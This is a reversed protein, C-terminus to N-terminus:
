YNDHDGTDIEFIDTIVTTGNYTCLQLSVVINGSDALQLWRQPEVTMFGHGFEGLDLCLFLQSGNTGCKTYDANVTKTDYSIPVNGYEDEAAPNITIPAGGLWTMNILRQYEASGTDSANRVYEEAIETHAKDAAAIMDDYSIGQERSFEIEDATYGYKRLNVAEQDSYETPTTTAADTVTDTSPDIPTGQQAEELMQLAVADDDVVDEPNVKANSGTNNKIAVASLVIILM